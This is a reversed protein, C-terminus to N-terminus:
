YIPYTHMEEDLINWLVGTDETSIIYNINVQQITKFSDGTLIKEKVLIDTWPKMRGYINDPDVNTDPIKFLIEFFAKTIPREPRKHFPFIDELIKSFAIKNDKVLPARQKWSNRQRNASVNSPPLIPIDLLIEIM